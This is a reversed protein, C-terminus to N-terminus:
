WTETSIRGAFPEHDMGQIVSSNLVMTSDFHCYVRLVRVLGHGTGSQWGLKGWTRSKFRTLYTWHSIVIFEPIIVETICSIVM